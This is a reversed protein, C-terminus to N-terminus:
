RAIAYPTRGALRSLIQTNERALRDNRSGQLGARLQSYQLLQNDDTIIRGLEAYRALQERRLLISRRIQSDSLARDERIRGIAPFVTGLPQAGGEHRGVLIGTLGVPDFWLISDPFLARFTAAISAAHLPNVLHIPLWQAVVAGPRLRSKMIEYFERSYLSNIGSFNPPMPELTVVDYQEGSRRLWARGDMTIARVRPDELVGENEDFLPALSLVEGSIEVVDVEGTVGLRVANATQGTGFCVVLGREPKPHLRAPLSGMWHMYHGAAFRESTAAFGDIFLERWGAPREIVTTTFDAGEAHAVITRQRYDPQGHMRERGPSSATSAAILLAVGGAAAPIWRRRPALLLASVLLVLLGLLWASRAFGLLPLLCWAAILSGAVSGLTNFGYLRGTSAPEPNQELYWPLATALCLVAPGIMAMSLLLWLSLVVPFSGDVVSMLDLREVLPTALLIAAGACLLMTAPRVGRRGLWPVIRAGIALPILVSALMIAFTSSTSWFAARMARFWAVELGFTVFGTCLVVLEPMRASVGRSGPTPEPIREAAHPPAAGPRVVWSTAFVVANLAAVLLCSHRVGFYPLLWFSLLLVGTAAGATNLGYLASIRTGHSRAVLQFVPVTAGMALTAPALLLAIGLGHLLPALASSAAYVAADLSELVHFGPLLALGAAGITAELGGYLRLPRAVPRGRLWIGAALAGISLGGMSAALTIATGAASIGFALSAELQWIVEWALAAVGGSFVMGHVVLVASRSQPLDSESDSM